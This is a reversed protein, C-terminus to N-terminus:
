DRQRFGYVALGLMLVGFAILVALETWISLPSGFLSLGLKDLIAAPV